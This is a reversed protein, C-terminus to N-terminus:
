DMVVTEGYLIVITQVMEVTVKRVLVGVVLLTGHMGRDPVMMARVTDRFGIRLRVRLRASVCEVRVPM